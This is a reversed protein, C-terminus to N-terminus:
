NILISFCSPFAARNAPLFANLFEQDLWVVSDIQHLARFTEGFADPSDRSVEGPIDQSSKKPFLKRTGPRGFM